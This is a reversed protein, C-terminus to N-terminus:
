HIIIDVVKSMIFDFASIIVTFITVSVIVVITSSKLEPLSCWTVKKLETQVEKLFVGIKSLAGVIGKSM